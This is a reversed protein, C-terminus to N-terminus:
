ESLLKEIAADVKEISSRKMGDKRATQYARLVSLLSKSLDHTFRLDTQKRDSIREGIEALQKSLSTVSKKPSVFAVM